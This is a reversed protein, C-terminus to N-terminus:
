AFSIRAALRRPPSRKAATVTCSATSSVPSEASLRPQPAREPLVILVDLERPAVDFFM